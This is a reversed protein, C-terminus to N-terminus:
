SWTLHRSPTLVVTKLLPRPAGPRTSWDGILASPRLAIVRLHAPLQDAFAALQEETIDPPCDLSAAALRHPAMDEDAAPGCWRLSLTEGAGRTRRPLGPDPAHWGSPALVLVPFIAGLGYHAAQVPRHLLPM